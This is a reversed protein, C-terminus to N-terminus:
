GIYNAPVSEVGNILRECIIVLFCIVIIFVDRVYHFYKGGRINVAPVM